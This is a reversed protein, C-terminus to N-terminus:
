SIILPLLSAADYHRAYAEREVDAKEHASASRERRMM